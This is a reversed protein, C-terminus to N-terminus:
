NWKKWFTTNPTEKESPTGNNAYILHIGKTLDWYFRTKKTKEVQTEDGTGNQFMYWKDNELRYYIWDSTGKKCMRMIWKGASSGVYDGSFYGVGTRSDISLRIQAKYDNFGYSYTYGNGNDDNDKEILSSSRQISETDTPVYAIATGNRGTECDYVNLEVPYIYFKYLTNQTDVSILIYKYKKFDSSDANM